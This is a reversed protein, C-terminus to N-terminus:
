SGWRCQLVPINKGDVEFFRGSDYLGELFPHHNYRSLCLRPKPNATGDSEKDDLFAREIASYLQRRTWEYQDPKIILYHGTTGHAGYATRFSYAPQIVLTRRTGDPYAWWVIDDWSDGDKENLELHFSLESIDDDTSVMKQQPIDWEFFQGNHGGNVKNWQMPIRPKSAAAKAKKPAPVQPQTEKVRVRKQPAPRSCEMHIDYLKLCQRVGNAYEADTHSAFKLKLARLVEAEDPKQRGIFIGAKMFDSALWKDGVSHYSHLGVCEWGGNGEKMRGGHKQVFRWPETIDEFRIINRFDTESYVRDASPPYPLNLAERGRLRGSYRFFRRKSASTNPTAAFLTGPERPPIVSPLARKAKCKLSSAKRFGTMPTRYDSKDMCNMWDDLMESVKAEPFKKWHDRPHVKRYWTGIWDSISDKNWKSDYFDDGHMGSQKLQEETMAARSVMVMRIQRETPLEKKRMAKRQKQMIEWKHEKFKSKAEKPVESMLEICKSGLLICEGTEKHTVIYAEKLNDQHCSCTHYEEISRMGPHVNPNFVGSLLHEPETRHYEIKLKSRICQMTVHDQAYVKNWFAENGDPCALLAMSCASILQKKSKYVHLMASEVKADRAHEFTRNQTEKQTEKQAQQQTHKSAGRILPNTFKPLM